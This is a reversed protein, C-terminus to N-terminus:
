RAKEPAKEGAPPTAPPLLHPIDSDPDDAHSSWGIAVGVGILAVFAVPFYGRMKRDLREAAALRGNAAAYSEWLVLGLAAATALYCVIYVRDALTLYAVRPLTDAQTLQFAIIALMCTIGVSAASGLDEPKIWFLGYALAVILFLPLFYRSLYFQWLRGVPISVILLRPGPKGPVASFSSRKVELKPYGLYRWASLERYGDIAIVNPWLEPEWIAQADELAREEILIRLNQDDFPFRRLRFSNAFTASVRRERYCQDGVLSTEDVANSLDASANRMQVEPRLGGAPWRTILAVEGSWSASRESVDRVHMLRMGVRVHEPLPVKVKGPDTNCCEPPGDCEAARAASALTLFFLLAVVAAVGGRVVRHMAFSAM